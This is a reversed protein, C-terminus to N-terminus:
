FPVAKDTGRARRRRWIENAYRSRDSRPTNKVILYAQEQSMTDLPECDGSMICAALAYQGFSNAGATPNLQATRSGRGTRKHFVLLRSNCGRCTWALNEPNMHAENGDVHGVFVTRPNQSHLGCLFCVRPPEPAVDPHNARYRKGRDTL